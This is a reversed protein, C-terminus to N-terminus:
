WPRRGVMAGIYWDLFGGVSSEIVPSLPGPRYGRSAIGAANNECLKWDQESTARWVAAIADIDIDVDPADDRVLFSVDVDTTTTDVPTLRTTVAYDCNAHAWLNPLGVLRLSGVDPDTLDGLLPAVPRGDLSETLFGARLPLRSIRYWSGGPFSVEAPALGLSEWHRYSDALADDYRPDTRLDGHTGYDFNSLSFEPHSGRCHYCERNNEVLTKWNAQVRYTDRAALRTADLRHPRLQPGLADAFGDFAPPDPALCVFVLGATERVAVPALRHEDRAFNEGMLRAARLHGDLGYTWQHYPCVLVRACGERDTTIRSGRHACVNYHARLVGDSDRVIIVSEAGVSFTVYRGPERVECSHTAFLWGTFFIRELDARFVERDTYAAQPLAFGDERLIRLAPDEEGPRSTPRLATESM